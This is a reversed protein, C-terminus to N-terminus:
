NLTQQCIKGNTSNLCLEIVLCINVLNNVWYLLALRIFFIIVTLM